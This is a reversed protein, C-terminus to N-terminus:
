AFVAKYLRDVNSSKSRALDLAVVTLVTLVIAVVFSLALAGTGPNIQRLGSHLLQLIAVQAIYGFLPYRGLLIIRSRVRGVETSSTGLLYILM